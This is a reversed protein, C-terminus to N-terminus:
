KGRFLSRKQSLFSATEQASLKGDQNKDLSQLLSPLQNLEVLSLAGDQNQDLISFMSLREKTGLRRKQGRRVTPSKEPDYRPNPVPIRADVEKLYADLRKRLADTKEPMQNSLDNRESIDKALNFLSLQGTEYFRILKLDGSLIATHPGDSSQYHPFHFVLEERPRKVIGEGKALLPVISGGEVGKPLPRKVGAWQCFTPFFDYGVVRSHCFTNPQISPGRIILPVRIGGEWVGGKGGRFSGNGKGGGAGNDSMYIFYTNDAAKLEDLAKMLMGVGTDLNEALAGRTIEKENRRGGRAQYERKTAELANQPYHLAHYSLQIFFPKKAAHNKKMFAIARRSMGFIDVPNPDKHPAAYGNGTDGDHEDYGHQGPGGGGIHWKGYHATAYGATKLLEAITTEEQPIQKRITPPILKYGDASTMTPAAKTWQLQAPSKGTQLSIRTPSCVSAPSYAASFRMGQQALRAINPTRVFDSASWPVDPHMRVSLGNWAQDDSLIFVINPKAEARVFATACVLAAILTKLHTRIM